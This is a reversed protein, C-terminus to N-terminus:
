PPFSGHSRCTDHREGPTGVKRKHETYINKQIPDRLAKMAILMQAIQVADYPGVVTVKRNRTGQEFESRGSIVIKVGILSQLQTIIEGGKGIITGVRDDPVPITTETRHNPGQIMGVGPLWPALMSDPGFMPPVGPGPSVFPYGPTSIAKSYNVSLSINNIYKPDGAVKTVLLAVARLMQELSGAVSVIRDYTGRCLRDQPSVSITAGSDEGFGRITEGGKGIIAGCVLSPMVLKLHPALDRDTSAKDGALEAKKGSSLKKLILYLATLVSKVTGSILMVRETSGPYFENNRSLQIRAGSHQQLETINSGCRGIIVGAAINSMLFKVAMKQSRNLPQGEVGAVAKSVEQETSM